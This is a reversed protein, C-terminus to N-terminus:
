IPWGLSTSRNTAYHNMRDYVLLFDGSKEILQVSRYM